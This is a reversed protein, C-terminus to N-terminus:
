GDVSMVTFTAGWPDALTAYRGFPTDEPGALVRGGGETATAVLADTDRCGFCVQAGTAEPTGFGGLPDGGTAFTAYGTMGDMDTFQWGFVSGYFRRGAEPDPTGLDEWVLAGPQNYVAAGHHLGAQWVGFSAGGPDVAILMRGTPGVDFPGAVVTGGAGAVREAVADADASAMYLTWGNPGSPDQAPGLGAASRGDVQAMTYGGYQPDGSGADWQWDFLSGYFRQAGALDPTSLDAWCPTGDPWADDRTPM